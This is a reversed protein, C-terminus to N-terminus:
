LDAAVYVGWSQSSQHTVELSAWCHDREQIKIVASALPSNTNRLLAWARLATRRPSSGQLTGWCIAGLVKLCSVRTLCLSLPLNDLCSLDLGLKPDVEAGKLHEPCEGAQEAEGEGKATRLNGM